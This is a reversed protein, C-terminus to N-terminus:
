PGDGSDAPRMASSDRTLPQTVAVVARRRLKPDALQPWGKFTHGNRSALESRHRRVFRWHASGDLKPGFIFDPHDFPQPEARPAPM